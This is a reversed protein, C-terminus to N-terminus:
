KLKMILASNPKLKINDFGRYEFGSLVDVGSNFRELVESYNQPIVTVDDASNNIAVMITEKETYRFYVYLEKNPVFHKLKGYHIADSGQRWKLINKIYNFVENQEDTRGEPTFASKKDGPFGGPYDARLIGHSRGEMLIETGYYIQPIGRTTLLVTLALKMKDIDGSMETFARAVDHNDIFTLINYPDSYLFDQSLTQYVNYISGKERFAKIIAEYLPFDTVSGLNSDYGNHNIKGGQYYAAYAPQSVWTEGVLYFDPYENLVVKNWEALSEPYPYPYTDMRIGDIGAYEIWWIANQILYKNVFKNRQNLDPMGQSFWGSMLKSKESESSHPDMYVIPNFNTGMFTDPHNVWDKSPMNKMWYHNIGIHNNVLDMIVKIGKKHSEDVFKRYLENNGFRPDISYMDTIAYGHYSSGSSNNEQVPMLWLATIGLDKIFDLKNILGKIDGGHRGWQNERNLKDPMEEISDNSTDGNAFRDPTVLYIVDSKNVYGPGERKAREKIEYEMTQRLDESFEFEINIKGVSVSESIMLDAILYNPNDTKHLKTIKVASDNVSLKAESINKGYILLQLEPNKMGKWWFSPEIKEVKSQAISNISM